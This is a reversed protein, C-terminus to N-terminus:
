RGQDAGPAPCPAAAPWGCRGWCESPKTAFGDAAYHPDIARCAELFGGLSALYAAAGDSAASRLGLGAYALGRGAQEWQWGNLHLGTLGSFCDRVLSDFHQLASRQGSPPACRSGHVLRCHGACSRLLRLGIQADELEALAELLPAAARVRSATHQDTFDEDGVAAGLLEFNWKLKSTGAPARLLAAPLHPVLAAEQLQGVGIVECKDINLSVGLAAGRLQLHALAAAVAEIDGALFGHDLYFVVLDLRARLELM